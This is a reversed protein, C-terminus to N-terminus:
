GHAVARAVAPVPLQSAKASASASSTVSWRPSHRRPDTPIRSRCADHHKFTADLARFGVGRSELEDVLRILEGARRGLRDLAVLVDRCRLYDIASRGDPSRVGASRRLDIGVCSRNSGRGSRPRLNRCGRFHYQKEDFSRQPRKRPLHQCDRRRNGTRSILLRITARSQWRYKRELLPVSRRPLRSPREWCRLAAAFAM